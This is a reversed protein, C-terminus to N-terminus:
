EMVPLSIDGKGSKDDSMVCDRGNAKARYLLRDVRGLLRRPSEGTRAVATGISVKLEVRGMATQLRSSAVLARIRQALETLAAEDTGVVLAAFEEGGWRAVLDEGRFNHDLTRAVLQLAQDGVDHGFQDNIRKFHDLDMLMVGLRLGMLRTEHLKAQLARNFMRRNPLETLADNFAMNALRTLQRHYSMTQTQDTFVEVAFRIRGDAERLPVSRVLVPVRHGKRHYLFIEARRPLGDRITALMPCGEICLQTGDAAVHRLINDSCRKGVVMDAPFGSIREAAKNWYVIRGDADLIYVGDQLCDFV